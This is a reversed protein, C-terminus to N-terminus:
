WDRALALGADARAQLWGEQHFNQQRFPELVIRQLVMSGLASVTIEQQEDVAVDHRLLVPESVEETRERLRLDVDDAALGVDCRGVEDRAGERETPGVKQAVLRRFKRRGSLDIGIVDREARVDEPPGSKRGDAM